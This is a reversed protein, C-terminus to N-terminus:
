EVVLKLEITKGGRLVTVPVEDGPTKNNMTYALLVAESMRDTFGDFSVLIDGRRFGARYAAAHSTLIRHHRLALEGSGIGVKRREDASLEELALGTARSWLAYTLCAANRAFGRTTKADSLAGETVRETSERM